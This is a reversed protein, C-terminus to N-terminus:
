QKCVYTRNNVLLSIARQSVKYQRALADSEANQPASM